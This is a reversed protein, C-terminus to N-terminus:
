PYISTGEIVWFGSREDQYIERGDALADARRRAEWSRELMQRKQYLTTLDLWVQPDDPALEAARELHIMATSFDMALLQLRGYQTRPLPDEPDMEISQELQSLAERIEGRKWSELAMAHLARSSESPEHNAAEPDPEPLPRPALDDSTTERKTVKWVEEEGSEEDVWRMQVTEGMRLPEGPEVVRPGRLFQLWIWWGAAVIVLTALGAIAHRRL